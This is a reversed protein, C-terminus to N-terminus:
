YWFGVLSCKRYHTEDCNWCIMTAKKGFPTQIINIAGSSFLEGRTATPLELCILLILITLVFEGRMEIKPNLKQCSENECQFTTVWKWYEHPLAVEIEPIKFNTGWKSSSHDQFKKHRDIRMELEYSQGGGMSKSQIAWIRQLEVEIRRLPLSWFIWPFLFVSQGKIKM